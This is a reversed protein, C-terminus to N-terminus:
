LWISQCIVIGAHRLRKGGADIIYHGLQQVLAVDSKLRDRIVDDVAAMDDQTLQKIDNISIIEKEIILSM